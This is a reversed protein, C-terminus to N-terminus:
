GRFGATTFAILKRVQEDTTTKEAWGPLFKERTVLWHHLAGYTFKLRWYVDLRSLAPLAKMLAKEFRSAVSTFQEKLLTEVEPRIEALCRGLLKAFPTMAPASKAASNCCGVAPLIFAEVIKEVSPGTPGSSREAATLMELRAANLPGLRRAFVAGILEEKSGFHYNIAAVNVGAKETVDRISVRDVGEDGFLQEAVNLIRDKTELAGSM